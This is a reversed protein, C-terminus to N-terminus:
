DHWFSPFRWMRVALFVSLLCFISWSEQVRWFVSTTRHWSVPSGPVSLRPGSAQLLPQQLGSRCSVCIALKISQQLTVAPLVGPGRDRFAAWVKSPNVRCFGVLGRSSKCLSSGLYCQCTPASALLMEMAFVEQKSHSLAVEGWGPSSPFGQKWGAGELRWSTITLNYFERGGGGGWCHEVKPGSHRHHIACNLSSCSVSERQSLTSAPGRLAPYFWTRLVMSVPPIQPRQYRCSCCAGFLDWSRALIVHVRMSSAQEHRNRDGSVDHGAKLLSGCPVSFSFFFFSDFLCLLM